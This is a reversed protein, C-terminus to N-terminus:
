TLNFALLTFYGLGSLTAGHLAASKEAYAKKLPWGTDRMIPGGGGPITRTNVTTRNYYDEEVDVVVRDAIVITSDVPYSVYYTYLSAIAGLFYFGTSGFDPLFTFNGIVAVPISILSPLATAIFFDKIHKM